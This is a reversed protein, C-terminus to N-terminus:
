VVFLQPFLSINLKEVNLKPCYLHLQERLKMEMAKAEPVPISAKEIWYGIYAKDGFPVRSIGTAPDLCAEKWPESHALNAQLEGTELAGIFFKIQLGDVPM